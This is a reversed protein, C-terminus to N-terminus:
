PGLTQGPAVRLYDAAIVSSRPVQGGEVLRRLDDNDTDDDLDTENTM